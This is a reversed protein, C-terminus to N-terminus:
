QFLALLVDGVDDKVQLSPFIVHFCEPEKVSGQVLLLAGRLGFCVSPASPLQGSLVLLATGPSPSLALSQKWDWGRERSFPESVFKLLCASVDGWLQLRM